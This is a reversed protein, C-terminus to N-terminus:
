SDRSFLRGLGFRRKRPRKRIGSGRRNGSAERRRDLDDLEKRAQTHRPNCRLVAELEHRQNDPNGAERWYMAMCFRADANYADRAAAHELHPRAQSLREGHPRRENKLITWGLKLSYLPTDPDLERAREFHREAGDVDGQGFLVSGRQHLAVAVSGAKDGFTEIPATLIVDFDGSPDPSSEEMVRGLAGPPTEGLRRLHETRRLDNSLAAYAQNVARFVLDADAAVPGLNLRDLRDPHLEKVLRVYAAKIDAGSADRPVGLLAFYDGDEVYEVMQRILQTVEESM